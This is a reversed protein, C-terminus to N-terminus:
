KSFVILKNEIKSKKFGLNNKIWDITSEQYFFVHTPDNKYYWNKFDVTEDYIATMCYLKGNPKLLKNLLSFEKRPNYFHEIVECCAIFDYKLNLVEKNKNFIPDYLNVSYGNERLVKTIVPGTGAGFDLGKSENSFDNMISDTIPFVFNIYRQDKIDNHHEKYRKEELELNLRKNMDLFVASCVSCRYYILNRFRAYEKGCNNCLPCDMTTKEKYSM